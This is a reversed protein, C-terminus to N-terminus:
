HEGHAVPIAVIVNGDSSQSAVVLRDPLAALRGTGIAKADLLGTSLPATTWDLGNTSVAVAVGDQDTGLVAVYGSGVGIAIAEFGELRETGAGGLSVSELTRGAGGVILRGAYLAAVIGPSELKAASWSADIHIGTSETTVPNPGDLLLGNADIQWFMGAGDWGVPLADSPVQVWNGGYLWALTGGNGSGWSWIAVTSAEHPDTGLWDVTAFPITPSADSWPTSGNSRVISRTKCDGSLRIARISGDAGSAAQEIWGDGLSVWTLTGNSTVVGVQFGTCTPAPSAGAPIVSGDGWTTVVANSGSAVVASVPQASHGIVSPSGLSLGSASPAASPSSAPGPSVQAPAGNAAVLRVPLPGSRLIALWGEVEAASFDGAIEGAGDTIPSALYPAGLVVGDLTLAMFEGVHDTTYAAFLSAGTATLKFRIAPSGNGSATVDIREFSSSVFASSGLLPVLDTAITEGPEPVSAPGPTTFTGYRDKPLPVIELVGPAEVLSRAISVNAGPPLDIAIRDSGAPTVTAREFGGQVLRARVVVVTMTMDGQALAHTSVAVLREVLTTGAPSPAAPGTAHHQGPDVLAIALVLVAVGAVGIFIRGFTPRLAPSRVQIARPAPHPRSTVEDLTEALSAPITTPAAARLWDRLVRERRDEGNPTGM